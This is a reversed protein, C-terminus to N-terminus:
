LGSVDSQWCLDMNDYSHNKWYDHVFTLAPDSLFRLALSSISEFQPEPSSEQSTGQVALLDLWDIRFSIWGSYEHSPSISFSFEGLGVMFSTSQFNRAARALRYELAGM